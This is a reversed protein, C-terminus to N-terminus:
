DVIDIAPFDFLHLDEISRAADSEWGAAEAQARSRRGFLIRLIEYDSSRLTAVPDGEGVV